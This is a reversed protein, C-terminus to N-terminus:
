LKDNEKEKGANKKTSYYMIQLIGERGRIYRHQFHPRERSKVCIEWWGGARGFILAGIKGSESIQLTWRVSHVETRM